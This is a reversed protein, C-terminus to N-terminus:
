QNKIHFLLLHDQPSHDIIDEQIRLILNQLRLILLATETAMPSNNHHSLLDDMTSSTTSPANEHHLPLLAM